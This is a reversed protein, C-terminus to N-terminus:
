RGGRAASLAIREFADDAMPENRYATGHLAPPLHGLIRAVALAREQAPLGRTARIRARLSPKRELFPQVAMAVVAAAVLGLGFLALLEAPGLELLEAPLRGPPLAAILDSQTM